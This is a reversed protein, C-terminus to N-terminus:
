FCEDYIRLVVSAPELAVIGGGKNAYLAKVDGGVMVINDDPWQLSIQGSKVEVVVIPARGIRGVASHYLLSRRENQALDITKEIFPASSTGPVIDPIECFPFLGRKILSEDPAGNDDDYNAFVEHKPIGITLRGNVMVSEWWMKELNFPSTPDYICCRIGVRALIRNLCAYVQRYKPYPFILAMLDLMKKSYIKVRSDEAALLAAFYKVSVLSVLSYTYYTPSVKGLLQIEDPGASLAILNPTEITAFPLLNNEDLRSARFFSYVLYDLNLREFDVAMHQMAEPATTLRHDEFFLFLSRSKLGAVIRRTAVIWDDEALEQYFTVRHFGVSRVFEVATDSLPGRIKFHAEAFLAAADRVTVKFMALKEQDGIRINALLPIDAIM